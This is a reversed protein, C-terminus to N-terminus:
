RKILLKHKLEYYFGIAYNYEKNDAKVGTFRHIEFIEGDKLIVNYNVRKKKENM